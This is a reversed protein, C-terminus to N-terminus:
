RALADLALLESLERIVPAQTVVPPWYPVFKWVALLGALHAGEVDAVPHDGVFVAQHAAVGLRALARRFIEADPKGVGEEDSVLVADFARDLGLVALKRRQLVGPGNTIVGLKLGRRRLEALTEHTDTHARCHEDFNDWFHAFLRDALEVELGWARVLAPYGTEKVGHGHHDMEHVDRLFRERSVGRLESAFAAYQQEFLSLALVDRDYLTGDLDFLVAAIARATMAADDRGDREAGRYM